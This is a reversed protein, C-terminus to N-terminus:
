IHILSLGKGLLEKLEVELSALRDGRVPEQNTSDTSERSNSSEAELTDSGTFVAPSADERRGGCVEQETQSM